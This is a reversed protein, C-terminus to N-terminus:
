KIISKIFKVLSQVLGTKQTEVKVDTKETKVAAGTTEEAPKEQLAVFSSYSETVKDDKGLVEIQIRYLGPELKEITKTFYGAEGVATFLAPDGLAVETFKKEEYAKQITEFDEKELEKVDFSIFVEKGDKDLIQKGDKDLNELKEEFVTVKIKTKDLVKISIKLQDDAVISNEAPNLLSASPTAAFSFTTFLMCVALCIALIRSLKKM